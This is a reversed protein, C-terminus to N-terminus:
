HILEPYKAVAKVKERTEELPLPQLIHTYINRKMFLDPNKIWAEENADEDKISTVDDIYSVVMQLGNFNVLEQFGLSDKFYFIKFTENDFYRLLPNKDRDLFDPYATSIKKGLRPRDDCGEEALSMTVFLYVEPFSSLNWPNFDMAKLYEYVFKIPFLPLSVYKHDLYDRLTGVSLGNAKFYDDMEQKHSKAEEWCAQGEPSSYWARERGTCDMPDKVEEVEKKGFGFFGM